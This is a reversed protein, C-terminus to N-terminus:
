LAVSPAQNYVLSLFVVTVYWALTFYLYAESIGSMNMNAHAEIRNLVSIVIHKFYNKFFVYKM